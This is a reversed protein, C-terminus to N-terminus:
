HEASESFKHTVQIAWSFPLDAQAFVETLIKELRSSASHVRAYYLDNLGEGNKM